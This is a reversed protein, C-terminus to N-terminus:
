KDEKFDKVILGQTITKGISKYRTSVYWKKLKELEVSGFYDYISSRSNLCIFQFNSGHKQINITTGVDMDKLIIEKKEMFQSYSFYVGSWFLPELEKSFVTHVPTKLSRWSAFDMWGLDENAEYQKLEQIKQKLEDDMDEDEEPLLAKKAKNLMQQGVMGTDEAGSEDMTKLILEAINM